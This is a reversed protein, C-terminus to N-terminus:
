QVTSPASHQHLTAVMLVRRLVDVPLVKSIPEAERIEDPSPVMIEEEECATAENAQLLSLFAAKNEASAFSFLLEYADAAPDGVLSLMRTDTMRAYTLMYGIAEAGSERDQEDYRPLFEILVLWDIEELWPKEFPLVRGLLFGEKTLLV